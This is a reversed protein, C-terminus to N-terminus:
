SLSPEGRLHEVLLDIFARIRSASHRGERHVVHIPVPPPECESLVVELAGAVLLPAVQYSMLRTIGAGRVAAEIAADNSTVVLRPDCRITTEGRADRLRWDVSQGLSTTAIISHARLEAPTAPAGRRALYGPSACIVRRVQGVRVAKLSSDQLDGIRVAVDVDEELLNVVRDLLLTSVTTEPYRDLYDVICPMVYMRGFLVPVTVTVHGRPAASIGLAAEDIEDALAVVRRADELYRRGVDTARVFRTTRHLLKVRLHSELTVVARTVAAPSMRLRRAAAAFSEEEAVAIFVTMLHLRDM